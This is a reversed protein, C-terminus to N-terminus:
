NVKNIKVLVRKYLDTENNDSIEDKFNVKERRYFM